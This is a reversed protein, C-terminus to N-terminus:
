WKRYPNKILSSNNYRTDYTVEEGVWDPKLYVEDEDDLEIEAIILGENEGRFEDIEWVHNEFKYEYRIKEILPKKCLNEMMEVADELPIEYQYEDRQIGIKKSKITLFGKSEVIRVRITKQPKTDIYGQIYLVGKAKRKYENNKVLFKREIEKPMNDCGKLM